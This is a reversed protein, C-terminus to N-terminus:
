LDPDHLTIDQQRLARWAAKGLMDAAKEIPTTTQHHLHLRLFEQAPGLLVIIFLDRPLERITSKAMHNKFWAGAQEIFATNLQRFEAKASEIFQSRRSEFIFRAWDPNRAAWDLHFRVAALIGERADTHKKLELLFGKQYRAIGELFVAAALQEKSKFHHYISGTSAGSESRIDAM